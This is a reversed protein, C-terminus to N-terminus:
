SDLLDQRPSGLRNGHKSFRVSQVLGVISFALAILAYLLFGPGVEDFGLARPSTLMMCDWVLFVAGLSLGIIALVRMTRTKVRLLGMLDTFLFYGFFFLSITGAEMTFGAAGEELMTAYSADFADYGGYRSMSSVFAISEATSVEEIYYAAVCFFVVSFVIGISYLAKNM